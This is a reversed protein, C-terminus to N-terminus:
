RPERELLGGFLDPERAHRLLAENLWQPNRHLEAAAWQPDRLIREGLWAPLRAVADRLWAVSLPRLAERMGDPDCTRGYLRVCTGFSFPKGEHAREAFVWELLEFREELPTAPDALRRLDDLLIFHLGVIEETSWGAYGPASERAVPPNGQGVDTGLSFALQAAQVSPVAAGQLAEMTAEM